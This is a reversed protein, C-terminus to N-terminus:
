SGPVVLVPCHAHTVCHHSVSGLLAGTFGGRGRSGVVLLSANNEEAADLLAQAAHGHAVEKTIPVTSEGAVERITQELAQGTKHAFDEPGPLEWNYLYPVDWAQVAVISGNVLGAHWLAWRLAAKSTESGDVGVVITYQPPQNM